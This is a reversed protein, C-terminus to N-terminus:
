EVEKGIEPEWFTQLYKVGIVRGESDRVASDPNTDPALVDPRHIGKERLAILVVSSVIYYIGEMPDPLNEIEGYEVKRVPIVGLRGVVRSTVTVRAVAGSPPIEEIVRKGDEDYIVIKHPTLNIVGIM